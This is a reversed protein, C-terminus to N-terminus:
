LGLEERRFDLPLEHSDVYLSEVSSIEFARICIKQGTNHIVNLKRLKLECASSHILLVVTLSQDVFRTMSQAFM